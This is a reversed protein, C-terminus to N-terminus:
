EDGNVLQFVTCFAFIVEPLWQQNEADAMVINLWESNRAEIESVFSLMSSCLRCKPSYFEVVTAEKGSALAAAFAGQEAEAQEEAEGGPSKRKRSQSSSVTSSPKPLSTAVFNVALSSLNRLSNLLWPGEFNCASPNKPRHHNTNSISISDDHWPWKLCFVPQKPNPVLGM